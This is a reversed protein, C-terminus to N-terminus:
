NQKKDFFPKQYGSKQSQNKKVINQSGYLRFLNVVLNGIFPYIKGSSLLSNIPLSKRKKPNIRLTTVDRSSDFVALDSFIEMIGNRFTGFIDLFIFIQFYGM